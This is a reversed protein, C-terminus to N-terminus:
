KLVLIGFSSAIHFNPTETKPDIWTLWTPEFGVNEKHNYKARFIGTEIKNNKILNFAELSKVSIAGEVIFYTENISSKVEINDEPWNWNFDFNKDPNAIFDMIRSYTDIELCYYPNLSNDARFFLEVRDSNGISEISNDARDIHIVTDFVTFNFFLNEKDWLAKFIIPSQKEHNWPSCFDKLVTANNWLHDDGKGSIILQNKEILQVEYEKIKQNM